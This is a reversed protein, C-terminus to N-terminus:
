GPEALGAQGNHSFNALSLAITEDPEVTTEGLIEIPVSKSTEGAGFNVTVPGTTFDSGAVATVGTLVVDVSTPISTIVSRRITVVNTTNTVDGEADSFTPASFDDGVTWPVAQYNWNSDKSAQTNGHKSASYVPFAPVDPGVHCEKCTYPKRAM